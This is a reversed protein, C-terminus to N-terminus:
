ERVKLKDTISSTRIQKGKIKIKGEIVEYSNHLLIKKFNMWGILKKNVDRLDLLKILEKKEKTDLKRDLYEAPVTIIPTDTKEARPVRFMLLEINKRIRSRAQIITDSSSNNIIAIEISDDLINIGTEYSANIILVNYEDPILGSELISKRVRYQEENMPNDKNNTSWLSIAKLGTFTSNIYEETEKATTIRDTYILCKKGYKFLNTRAFWYNIQSIDNFASVFNEKLRKIDTRSSLNIINFTEDQYLETDSDLRKIRDHTATFSVVKCTLINKAIFEIKEIVKKYNQHEETDFKDMYKFLNHYEDCVIFDINNFDIKDMEYYFKAYTMVKCNFKDLEFGEKGKNHNDNLSMTKDFYDKDKTVAENLNSTDCLYISEKAGALLTNFIYYTKGSGAPAIINNIKNNHIMVNENQMIENVTLEKM